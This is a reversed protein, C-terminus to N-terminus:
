RVRTVSSQPGIFLRRGAAGGLLGSFDGAPLNVALIRQGIGDFDIRVAVAKATDPKPAAAPEGRSEDRPAARPEDGTEPLLPSPDSASLVALYIARRVPRDVSSMELWGTRPGYDTSAMFYLSKGG